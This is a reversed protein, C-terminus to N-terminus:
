GASNCTHNDTIKTYKIAHYNPKPVSYLDVELGGPQVM